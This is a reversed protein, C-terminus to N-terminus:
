AHRITIDNKVAIKIPHYSLKARKLGEDGADDERNIFQIGDYKQLIYKAFHNTLTEYVGEFSKDCKEIHAIFTNGVVEGFTFGIVEGNLIMCESEVDIVGLTDLMLSTAKLEMGFIKTNKDEGSKFKEFFRKVKEINKDSIKEFSCEGYLRNFRSIYNRKAHYKKGKLESFAVADYVYDAWKANQSVEGDVKSKILEVLEDPVSRIVTKGGHLSSWKIINDLALDLKERSCIPTLYTTTNKGLYRIYLIEDQIKYEYGVYEDYMYIYGLSYDAFVYNLGKFYPAIEQYSKNTLKCFETM